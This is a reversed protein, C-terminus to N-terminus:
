CGTGRRHPGIVDRVIVGFRVTTNVLLVMTVAPARASAPGLADKQDLPQQVDGGLSSPM